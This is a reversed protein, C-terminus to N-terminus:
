NPKGGLPETPSREEHTEDGFVAKFANTFQATKRFESFLPWHLYDAKHPYSAQGIKLMIKAATDFRESLVAHSLRFADDAASWDQTSLIESCKARDGGLYYALARNVLFMLRYRETAHRKGLTTDAFDLLVKAADLKNDVLLDYTVDILSRDAFEIEGPVTKRWLVQALKVGIEYLVLHAQRFYSPTVRLRSGPGVNKQLAVGASRCNAIYQSSAVGDAHTFVNRRETIEVFVTWAPLEKRLQIDFRKELWEFQDAHSKRLLNEIEKELVFERADDISSFETLQQYTLSRESSKLMEPRARFLARVVGGLFADYRSVLAVLFSQPVVASAAHMRDLERRLVGLGHCYEHSRIRVYTVGERETTEGYAEIYSDYKEHARDHAKDVSEMATDLVAALSDMASIFKETEAIIPHKQQKKDQEGM